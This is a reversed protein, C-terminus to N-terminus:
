RVTVRYSARPDLEPDDDNLLAIEDAAAEVNERAARTIDGRTTVFKQGANERNEIRELMEAAEWLLARTKALEAARGEYPV